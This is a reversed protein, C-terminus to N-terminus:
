VGSKRKKVFEKELSKNIGNLDFESPDYKKGYWKKLEKHRGHKPSQMAEVFEYYGHIGGCDEPPCSGQGAICLPLVQGGENEETDELVLRHNWDDGFDYIYQFKQGSKNILDNIRFKSEDVMNGNDDDPDILGYSNKSIIFEHLHSDHWGMIIQLVQHFVDMKLNDFVKFRRWIAPNSGDLEIIFTYIKAKKLAM